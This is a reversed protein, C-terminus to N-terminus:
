AGRAAAVAAGVDISGEYIARGIVLGALSFDCLRRVDDLDSIGGCAYVPLKTNAALNRIAKINPGLLM